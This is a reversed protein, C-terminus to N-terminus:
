EPVYTVIQLFVSCLSGDLLRIVYSAALDLTREDKPRRPDERTSFKWKFTEVEYPMDIKVSVERYM